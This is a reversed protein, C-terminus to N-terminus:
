PGTIETLQYNTTTLGGPNYLHAGVYGTTTYRSAGTDTTQAVQSGNQYLTLTVTAGAGSATLRIIDGDSLTGAVNSGLQVYTPGSGAVWYFQWGTGNVFRGLYGNVNNPGNLRIDLGVEPNGVITQVHVTESVDDSTYAVGADSGAATASNYLVGSNVNLYTDYGVTDGLSQNWTQGTNATHASLLSTGAFTDLLSSPPPTPTTTPGPSPINQPITGVGLAIQAQNGFYPRAANWSLFRTTDTVTAGSWMTGVLCGNEFYGSPYLGCEDVNGYSVYKTQPFSIEANFAGNIAAAKQAENALDNPYGYFMESIMLPVTQGAATELATLCDLTILTNSTCGGGYDTIPYSMGLHNSIGDYCTGPGCSFTTRLDTVFQQPTPTLGQDMSLEFAYVQAAPDAAKIASYCNSTYAALNAEMAVVQVLSTALPQRGSPTAGTDQYSTVGHATSAIWGWSSGNNATRYVNYGGTEGAQPGWTLNITGNTPTVSLINNWDAYIYSPLTEDGDIVASIVYNYATSNSLTGVPSSTAIPVPAVPESFPNIESAGPNNINIENGIDSYLHQNPFNALTHAAVTGCWTGYDAPSNYRDHSVPNYGGSNADNYYVPGPELGVAETIGHLYTGCMTSDFSGWHYGASIHSGDMFFSSTTSRTWSPGMDLMDYYKVPDLPYGSLISNGSSDQWQCYQAPNTITTGNYTPYPNPTSTATDLLTGYPPNGCCRWFVGAKPQITNACQAKSGNGAAGGSTCNAGNGANGASQPFAVAGAGIFILAAIVIYLVRRM